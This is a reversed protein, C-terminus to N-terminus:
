AIEDIRRYWYKIDEKDWEEDPEDEPEDDWRVGISEAALREEDSITAGNLDDLVEEMRDCWYGTWFEGLAAITETTEQELIDMVKGEFEEVLDELVELLAVQEQEIEQIEEVDYGPRRLEHWSNSNCCTHQINLAGFTTFRISDKHQQVKMDSGFHKIYWALRRGLNRNPHRAPSAPTTLRLPRQYSFM